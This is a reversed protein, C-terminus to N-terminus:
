RVPYSPGHNEKKIKDETIYQEISTDILINDAHCEALSKYEPRNAGRQLENYGELDISFDETPIQVEIRSENLETDTVEIILRASKIKAEPKTEPVMRETV